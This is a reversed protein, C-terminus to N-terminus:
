GVRDNPGSMDLFQSLDHRATHPFIQRQGHTSASGAIVTLGYREVATDHDFHGRAVLKEPEFVSDGAGLSADFQTHEILEHRRV